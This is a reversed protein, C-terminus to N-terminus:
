KDYTLEFDSSYNILVSNITYKVPYGQADMTYTFAQETSVQHNIDDYVVLTKPLNKSRKGSFQDSYDSMTFRFLDLEPKNPLNDYYTFNITYNPQGNSTTTLRILNGENYLFDTQYINNTALNTKVTRIVNGDANYTLVTKSLADPQGPQHSVGTAELLRSKDDLKGDKFEFYISNTSKKFFTWSFIKNTYDYVYNYSPNDMGTMRGSADYTFNTANAPAAPQSIKTIKRLPEVPAPPVPDPSNVDNKKCSILAASMLTSMLLLSRMKKFLM